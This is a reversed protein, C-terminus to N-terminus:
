WYILRQNPKGICHRLVKNLDGGADFKPSGRQPYKPIQHGRYSDLFNVDDFGPHCYRVGDIPPCRLTGVGYKERINVYFRTNSSNAESPGQNQDVERRDTEVDEDMEPILHDVVEYHSAPGIFKAETGLITWHGGQLNACM